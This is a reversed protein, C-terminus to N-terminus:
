LDIVLSGLEAFEASQEPRLVVVTDPLELLMPGELRDAIRGQNLRLVPTNAFGGTEQWYVPRESWQPSVSLAPPTLEPPDASIAIVEAGLEHFYRVDENLDFLQSVCHNCYYGLYFVVVVPGKKLEKALQVTFIKGAVAGRTTFNPAKAGPALAAEAAFPLALAALFLAIRM